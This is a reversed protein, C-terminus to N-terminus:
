VVLDELIAEMEERRFPVGIMETGAGDWKSDVMQHDQFEKLLTRFAMDSTCIFEEVAKQYLARVAMRGVVGGGGAAKRSGEEPYLTDNDEIGYDMAALLEAILIRYLNRANEPLSRLVFGVGEKGKVSRGSRGLLENMTDVVSGTEFPAYSEFSTTDHFLFNFQERTWAEFLRQFNPNDCTALLNIHSNAALTAFISPIHNRRLPPADLSNIFIYIPSPPPSRALQALISDTIDRPQTGLRLSSAPADFAVTAITTLVQRIKLAPTYGNIIIIKPPSSSPRLSYLHEAFDTVLRRKSGYGYLCINFSQSLEFNWQPFSRSHLSHLFKISSAHPDVFVSINNHYQEHSLLSLSSLTNNSTKTNKPHNQLFYLEHPPLDDPPTISRKRRARAVKKTNRKSPTSPIPESLQGEAEEDEPEDIFEKVESGEGGENADLLPCEEDGSDEDAGRSLRISKRHTLLDLNSGINSPKGFKAVIPGGEAAPTPSSRDLHGAVRNLVPKPRKAAKVYEGEIGEDHQVDSEEEEEEEGEDEGFDPATLYEDEDLNNEDSFSDNETERVPSRLSTRRTSVSVFASTRSSSTAIKGGLRDQTPTFVSRKAKSKPTNPPPQDLPPDLRNPVHETKKLSQNLEVGVTEERQDESEQADEEDDSGPKTLISEEDTLNSISWIDDSKGRSHYRASKESKSMAKGKSKPTASSDNTRRGLGNSVHKLKERAKSREKKTNPQNKRKLGLSGRPRGGGRKIPAADPAALTPRRPNGDGQHGLIARRLIRKPEPPIQEQAEEDEVEHRKRKATM